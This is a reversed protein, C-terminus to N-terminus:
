GPLPVARGCNVPSQFDTFSFSIPSQRTVRITPASDKDFAPPNATPGARFRLSHLPM